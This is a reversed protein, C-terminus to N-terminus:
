VVYSLCALDRCFMFNNKLTFEKTSAGLFCLTNCSDNVKVLYIYCKTSFLLYNHSTSNQEHLTSRVQFQIDSLLRCNLVSCANVKSWVFNGSLKLFSTQMFFEYELSIHSFPNLKQMIDWLSESLSFNIYQSPLTWSIIDNLKIFLVLQKEFSIHTKCFIYKYNVFPGAIRLCVSSSHMSAHCCAVSFPKLGNEIRSFKLLSNEDGSGLLAIYSSERVFSTAFVLGAFQFHRFEKCCNSKFRM